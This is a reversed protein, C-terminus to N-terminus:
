EYKVYVLTLGQPQANHRCVDKDCAKLMVDVAEVDICNRGVEILTATIMRVMYRLFGKGEYIIRVTNNNVEFRIDDITRIQCRTVDKSNACFSSFDHEGILYSSAKKMKEIDLPYPCQYAYNASFVDYEGLHIVYDYRKKVVSFRAHFTEDVEEVDLIYIDKPLYGNIARKWDSENLYFTTDFHFVQGKAHVKADTRGSSVITITEKSISNLVKEIAEQVSDNRKQSQWGIYNTGDYSCTCKFRRVDM